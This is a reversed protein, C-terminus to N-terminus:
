PLHKEWKEMGILQKEALFTACWVINMYPKAKTACVCVSLYLIQYFSIQPRINTVENNHEVAAAREIRSQTHIKDFNFKIKKM